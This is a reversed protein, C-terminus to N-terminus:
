KLRVEPPFLHLLPVGIIFFLGVGGKKDFSSCRFFSFFFLLRSMSCIYPLPDWRPEIGPTVTSAPQRCYAEARSQQWNPPPNGTHLRPRIGGGHGQSEYSAVFHSTEFRLCYFITALGLLKPGSFSQALSPWCCNYVSSGGERWLSRGM